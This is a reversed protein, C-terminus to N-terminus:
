RFPSTETYLSLHRADLQETLAAQFQYMTLALVLSQFFMFFCCTSELAGPKEKIEEPAIIEIAWRMSPLKEMVFYGVPTHTRIDLHTAM